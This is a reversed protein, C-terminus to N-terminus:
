AYTSREHDHSQRLTQLAVDNSTMTFRDIFDTSSGDLHWSSSCCEEVLFRRFRHRIMTDPKLRHRDVLLARAAESTARAVLALPAFVPTGAEASRAILITRLCWIMRRAVVGSDLDGGYRALFWGFDLAKGIEEAYSTRLRFAARLEVLKGNTDFFPKAEQVLHGVFLDGQAADALLKTRPYFFMSVHGVSTHRPHFGPVIILLDTDSEPAHDNRARSGFLLMASIAMLGLRTVHYPLM